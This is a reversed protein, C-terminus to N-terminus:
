ARGAERALGTALRAVVRRLVWCALRTLGPPAADFAGRWVIRTGGGAQATLEVTALYGRVPGSGLLRYSLRQAPVYEVVQERSALPGLGLRRIAGVGGPAPNGEREWCSRPVLPGAWRSWTAGDAVVAFVREPTGASTTEVVFSRGRAM